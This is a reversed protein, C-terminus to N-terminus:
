QPGFCQTVRISSSLRTRIRKRHDCWYLSLGPWVHCGERSEIHTNEVTTELSDWYKVGFLRRWEVWINRVEDKARKVQKELEAPIMKGRLCFSTVPSCLLTDLTLNTNSDVWQPCEVGPHHPLLGEYRKDTSIVYVNKTGIGLFAAAKAVSYHCQFLWHCVTLWVVIYAM